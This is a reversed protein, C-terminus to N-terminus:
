FNQDSVDLFLVLYSFFQFTFIINFRTDIHLMYNYLMITCYLAIFQVTCHLLNYMVTCYMTCYLAIFQVNCHLVNYMVTCYM